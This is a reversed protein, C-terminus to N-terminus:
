LGPEPTTAEATAFAEVTDGYLALAFFRLRQPGAEDTLIWQVSITGLTPSGLIAGEGSGSGFNGVVAGGGDVLQVWIGRLSLRGGPEFVQAIVPQPLTDGVEAIQADGSEIVVELPTAPPLDVGDGCSALPLVVLVPAFIRRLDRIRGFLKAADTKMDHRGEGGM